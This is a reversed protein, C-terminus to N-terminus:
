RAASPTGARSTTPGLYGETEDSRLGARLTSEWGSELTKVSIRAAKGPILVRGSRTATSYKM